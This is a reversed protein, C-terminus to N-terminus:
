ILYKSQNKLYTLTNPGENFVLDLISLNNLFGYKSEFVQIYHDFKNQSHAKKANAISRFDSHDKATLEYSTTKSYALDIQLCDFIFETCKLNFDLLYRPKEEFLPKLDDEYFEFYPSSRYAAELSKWHNKLTNFQHEIQIDKYLRKTGKVGSHLIPINLCLKGNAGYIYTRNRFTQKQFNDCVEFCIKPANVIAVFQSIPGFYLPHVLVEANLM